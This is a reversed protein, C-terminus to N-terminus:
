SNPVVDDLSQAAGKLEDIAAQQEPTLEGNAGELAAIKALIEDKAKGLQVAVNKIEDIAEQINMIIEKLEQKGAHEVVIKIEPPFNLNVTM